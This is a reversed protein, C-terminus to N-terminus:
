DGISGLDRFTDTTHASGSDNRSKKSGSQKILDELKPRMFELTGSVAQAAGEPADLAQLNTFLTGGERLPYNWVQPVFRLTLGDVHSLAARMALLNNAKPAHPSTGKFWAYAAARTVGALSALQSMSLGLADRLWQAAEVSPELHPEALVLRGDELVAESRFEKSVVRVRLTVPTPATAAPAVCGSAMSSANVWVAAGTAARSSTTLASKTKAVDPDIAPKRREVVESM